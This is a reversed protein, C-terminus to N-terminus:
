TAAQIFRSVVKVWVVTLRSLSPVVEIFSKQVERRALGVISAIRDGVREELLVLACCIAGCERDARWLFEPLGLCCCSSSLFVGEGNEQPVLRVRVM